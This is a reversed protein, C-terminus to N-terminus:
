EEHGWSPDHLSDWSCGMCYPFRTNVMAKTECRPCTKYHPRNEKRDKAIVELCDSFDYEELDLSKNTLRFNKLSNMAGGHQSVDADRRLIPQLLTGSKM